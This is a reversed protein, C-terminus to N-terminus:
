NKAKKSLLDMLEKFNQHNIKSTLRKHFQKDPTNEESVFYEGFTKNYNYVTDYIDYLLAVNHDGLFTCYAVYRQWETTYRINVVDSMDDNLYNQISKLDNYLISATHQQKDQNENRRYVSDRWFTIAGGIIAGVITGVLASLLETM